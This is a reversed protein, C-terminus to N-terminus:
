APGRRALAALAGVGAVVLTGVAPEPVFLRLPYVAHSANGGDDAVLLLSRDGAGLVRGLTMGEFNAATQAQWLLTKGVPTYSAGELAPLASVDTAGEFDVQYIRSRFLQSSFSRELVLLEGTELALLDSVGSRELGFIPGGPIPDTVYAWQGDPQLTEDFRQLRVVTGLVFTSIPGDPVLAEENATWLAGGPADLALSELSLNSRYEDFISPVGVSGLLAGDSLRHERIEAGKEDSVFVTGTSGDYAVGELDVGVALSLGAGIATWDVSGIDLDVAITIPFLQGGADSAAVFADGGLHSIGSLEGAPGSPLAVVQQGPDLVLLQARAPQIGGVGLLVALAAGLAGPLTRTTKGM